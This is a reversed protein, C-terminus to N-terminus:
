KNLHRVAFHLVKNYINKLKAFCESKKMICLTMVTSYTRFTSSMFQLFRAGINVVYKVLDM